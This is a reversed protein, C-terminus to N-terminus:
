RRADRSRRALTAATHPLDVAGSRIMTALRRLDAPEDIDFCPELARLRLGREGALARTQQFVAATSLTIPTFIDVPRRLGVLCYGGDASPVLAVDCDGLARFAARVSRPPLHPVDGGIMVVREAGAQFLREFCDLMREALGSGQQDMCLCEAGVVSAFDSGPPEVAWVLTHNDDEFRTAIDLLFAAYLEGAAEAGLHVALRTKVEGARPYKAMVVLVNGALQM